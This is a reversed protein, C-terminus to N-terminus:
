CFCIIENRIGKRREEEQSTRGGIGRLDKYSLEVACQEWQLCQSFSLSFCLSVERSIGIEALASSM